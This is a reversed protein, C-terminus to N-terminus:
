VDNDERWTRKRGTNCGRCVRWSKNIPGRTWNWDRILHVGCDLCTPPPVTEWEVQIGHLELCVLFIDGERRDRFAAMPVTEGTYVDDRYLYRPKRAPLFGVCLQQFSM